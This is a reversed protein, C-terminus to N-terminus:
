DSRREDLNRCDETRMEHRDQNDRTVEVSAALPEAVDGMGTEARMFPLAVLTSPSSCSQTSSSSPSSHICQKATLRRRKQAREGAESTGTKASPAVGAKTPLDPSSRQVDCLCEEDSPLCGWGNRSDEKEDEVNGCGTEALAVASEFDYDEGFAM